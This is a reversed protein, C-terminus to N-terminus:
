QQKMAEQICLAMQAPCSTKKGGCRIGQLKEAAPGAPQGILLTCVGQLNGECGDEVAINTIIGEEITVTTSHSCVGINKRTFTM